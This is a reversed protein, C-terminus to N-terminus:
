GEAEGDRGCEEDEEIAWARSNATVDLCPHRLYYACARATGLDATDRRLWYVPRVGRRDEVVPM